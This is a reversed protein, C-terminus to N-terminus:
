EYAKKIWNKGQSDYFYGDKLKTEGDIAHRKGAIRRWGRQSDYETIIMHPDFYYFSSVWVVLRFKDDKVGYYLGRVNPKGDMLKLADTIDEPARKNSRTKEQINTIVPELGKISEQAYMRGIFSGSVVSFLPQGIFFAPVMIIAFIGRLWKTKILGFVIKLLFYGPVFYFLGLLMFSGGEYFSKNVAATALGALLLIAAITFAMMDRKLTDAKPTPEKPSLNEQNTKSDISNLEKDSPNTKNRDPFVLLLMIGFIHALGLFGWKWDYGKRLAENGVGWILLSTGVGIVPYGWPTDVLMLVYLGVSQIFLGFIIGVGAKRGYAPNM